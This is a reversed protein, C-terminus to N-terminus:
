TQMIYCLLGGQFYGHDYEYFSVSSGIIGISHPTIPLFLVLLYQYFNCKIQSCLNFIVRARVGVGVGKM